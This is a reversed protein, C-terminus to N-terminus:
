LRALALFIAHISITLFLYLKRSTAPSLNLFKYKLSNDRCTSLCDGCTTCTRGAKRSKIDSVSLADYRCAVSCLMCDTCTRDEIIIRFPNLRGAYNVITGIPCYVLCHVMRNQKRSFILMVALGGLGFTGAAITTWFSSVGAFRFVLASVIIILIVTFKLQYKNKLPKRTPRGKSSILNDFAGFYCLQSCWAPGVLVLTSIFLITMVSTEGRFLPGALIMAPVPLHLKGTMLFKSEVTMGLILQTFFFISFLTWSIRRWKPQQQPDMMKSALLGGYIAVATLEVWGMGLIFRDAILMRGPFKIQMGALVTFVFLFVSIPLTNNRIWNLVREM